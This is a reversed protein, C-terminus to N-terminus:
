GEVHSKIQPMRKMVYITSSSFLLFDFSSYTNHVLKFNHHARQLPRAEAQFPQKSVVYAQFKVEYSAVDGWSNVENVSTDSYIQM